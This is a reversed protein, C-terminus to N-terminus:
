VFVSLTFTYFCLTSGLYSKNRPETTLVQRRWVCWKASSVDVWTCAVWVRTHSNIFIDHWHRTTSVTAAPYHASNSCKAKHQFDRICSFHLIISSIYLPCDSSEITCPRSMFLTGGEAFSRNICSRGRTFCGNDNIWRRGHRDDRSSLTLTSMHCLM